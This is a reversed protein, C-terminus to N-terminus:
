RATRFKKSQQRLKVAVPRNHWASNASPTVLHGSHFEDICGHVVKGNENYVRWPSHAPRCCTNCTTM